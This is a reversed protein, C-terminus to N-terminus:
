SHNECELVSRRISSQTELRSSSPSSGIPATAGGLPCKGNTRRLRLQKVSGSAPFQDLMQRRKAHLSKVTSIQKPEARTSGLM